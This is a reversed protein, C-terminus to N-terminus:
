EWTLEPLQSEIDQMSTPVPVTGSMVNDFYTLLSAWTTDLLHRGRAAEANFQPIASGTYKGILSDLNNYNRTQAFADLKAHIYESVLKYIHNVVVPDVDEISVPQPEEMPNVEVRLQSLLQPLTYPVVPYSVTPVGNVLEVKTEHYHFAPLEPKDKFVVRTYWEIPHARNRIHLRYVPFEVIAGNVIRAFVDLDNEQSSM